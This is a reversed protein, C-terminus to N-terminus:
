RSAGRQVEGVVADREDARVVRAREGEGAGVRPHDAAPDDVWARREVRVEVGDGGRDALGLADGDRVVVFVVDLPKVSQAGPQAVDRDDGRAASRM